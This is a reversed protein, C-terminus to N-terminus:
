SPGKSLISNITGEDDCSYKDSASYFGEKPGYCGGNQQNLTAMMPMMFGMNKSTFYTYLKQLVSARQDKDMRAFSSMDDFQLGSWDLALFVNKAKSVYQQNWLLAWCSSLQSWCPGSEITGSDGIGVGGEIYDFQQLYNEDTINGTQAGIVIQVGKKKAYARVTKLVEPLKSKALNPDDQYYIQGFMFSQIGLDIGQEMIYTVYDRYKRSDLDPKCTHEGWANQSGNRCMDRFDFQKTNGGSDVYTYNANIKLDEAIFMGYILGPKNVKQMIEAAKNFDPPNGWTELARHLYACDSRQIMAAEADTDKGYGSLLGDAVCGRDKMVRMSIPGTPYHYLPPPPQPPMLDNDSIGPWRIPPVAVPTTKNHKWYYAGIGLVVTLVFAAGVATIRKKTLKIKM